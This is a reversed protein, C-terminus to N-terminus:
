RTTDGNSDRPSRRRPVNLVGSVLGRPFLVLAPELNGARCRVLTGWPPRANIGASLQFAVGTQPANFGPGPGPACSFNRLVASCALLGAFVHTIAAPAAGPRGVPGRAKACGAGGRRIHRIREARFRFV